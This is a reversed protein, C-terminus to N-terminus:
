RDSMKTRESSAALNAWDISTEEREREREREIERDAPGDRRSQRGFPREM